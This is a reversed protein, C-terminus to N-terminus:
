KIKNKNKDEILLSADEVNLEEKEEVISLLLRKKGWAM